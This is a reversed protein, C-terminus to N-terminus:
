YYSSHTLILLYHPVPSVFLPRIFRKLFDVRDTNFILRHLSIFSHCQIIRLLGLSGQSYEALELKEMVLCLYDNMSHFSYRTTSLLEKDLM